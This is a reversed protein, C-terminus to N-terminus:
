ADAPRRETILTDGRSDRSVRFDEDVFINDFRCSLFLTEFNFISHNWTRHHQSTIDHSGDSVTSTHTCVGKSYQRVMCRAVALGISGTQYLLPLSRSHLPEGARVSLRCGFRGKRCSSRPKQSGACFVVHLSSLEVVHWLVHHLDPFLARERM